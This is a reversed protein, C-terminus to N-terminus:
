KRPIGFNGATKIYSLEFHQYEIPCLEAFIEYFRHDHCCNEGYKIHSVLHSLEHAVYYIFYGGNTAMNKPHTPKYAWFPVTFVRDSYHARGRTVDAIFGKIEKRYKSYQSQMLIADIAGDIKDQFQPQVMRLTRM